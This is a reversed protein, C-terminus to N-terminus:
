RTRRPSKATPLAPENREPLEGLSRAILTNVAEASWGDVCTLMRTSELDILQDGYENLFADIM